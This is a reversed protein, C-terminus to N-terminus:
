PYNVGRSFCLGPHEIFWRHRTPGQIVGDYMLEPVKLRYNGCMRKREKPIAGQGAQPNVRCVHLNMTLPSRLGINLARQTAEEKGTDQECTRAAM